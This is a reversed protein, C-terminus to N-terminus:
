SPLAPTPATKRRLLFYWIITIALSAGLTNMSLDIATDANGGSRQSGTFVDELFEEIEYLCGLALTIAYAFGFHIVLPLRLQISHFYASLIHWIVLTAMAGGIFHALTDYWPYITYWHTIDGAVDVTLAALAYMWVQWPLERQHFTSLHHNFVEIATVVATTTIALGLWTYSLDNHFIHLLNGIEFIILAAFCGRILQRFLLSPALANLLAPHVTGSLKLTHRTIIM